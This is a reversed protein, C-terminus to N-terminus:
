RRVLAAKSMQLTTSLGLVIESQAPDQFNVESAFGAAMVVPVLPQATQKWLGFDHFFGYRRDSVSM